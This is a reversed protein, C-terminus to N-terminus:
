VLALWLHARTYGRDAAGARAFATDAARLDWSRLAAQGTVFARRAALRHTGRNEERADAGEGPVLLGEIVSQLRERVASNSGPLMAEDSRLLVGKRRTDYLGLYVRLSDGLRRVTGRVMRGADLQRAIGTAEELSLPRGGQRALLESERGEDT